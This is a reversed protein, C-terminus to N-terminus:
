FRGVVVRCAVRSLALLCQRTSNFTALFHSQRREREVRKGAGEVEGYYVYLNDPM